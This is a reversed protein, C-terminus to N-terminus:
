KIISVVLAAVAIGTTILYAVISFFKNIRINRQERKDRKEKDAKDQFYHKGNETLKVYYEHGKGLPKNTYRIEIFDMKELYLIVSEDYGNTTLVQENIGDDTDILYHLTEEENERLQKFTDLTKKDGNMKIKEKKM